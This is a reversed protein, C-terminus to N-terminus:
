FRLGMCSPSRLLVPVGNQPRDSSRRGCRRNHANTGCPDQKLPSQRWGCRTSARRLRPSNGYGTSGSRVLWALPFLSPVSSDYLLSRLGVHDAKICAHGFTPTSTRPRGQGTIGCNRLFASSPWRRKAASYGLPIDHCEQPGARVQLISIRLQGRGGGGWWGDPGCLQDEEDQERLYLM